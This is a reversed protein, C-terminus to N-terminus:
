DKGEWEKYFRDLYEEMFRHRGEAIKKGAETNMLDKLLLLKEYFHNITHGDAKMYRESTLEKDHPTDPEYLVRGKKGGFAFCRAIGIAGIADLRDADQVVKGENSLERRQGINDTFSMNRIVHLVKEQTDEDVGQKMMWAKANKKDDSHEGTIKFDDLDHLLATMEVIFMDAEEQKGIHISNKWVRYIHWWDHGSSEGSLAEKVHDATKQIISGKDM